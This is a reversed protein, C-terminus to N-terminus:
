HEEKSVLVSDGFARLILYKAAGVHEIIGISLWLLKLINVSQQLSPKLLFTM